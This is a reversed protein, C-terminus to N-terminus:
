RFSCQEPFIFLRPRIRAFTTAAFGSEGMAGRVWRGIIDRQLCSYQAGREIVDIIANGQQIAIQSSLKEVASEAGHPAYGVVHGFPSRCENVEHIM